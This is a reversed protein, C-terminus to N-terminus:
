DSSDSGQGSDSDGEGESDAEDECPGEDADESGSSDVEGSEQRRGENDDADTPINIVTITNESAEREALWSMLFANRFRIWMAKIKPDCAKAAYDWSAGAKIMEQVTEALWHAQGDTRVDNLMQLHSDVTHRDTQDYVFEFVDEFFKTFNMAQARPGTPARTAQKHVYKKLAEPDRCKEIHAKPMIKKVKAFRVQPTHLFGQYHQRGTDPAIEMQGELTWGEPLDTKEEGNFL